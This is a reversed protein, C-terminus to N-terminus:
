AMRVFTSFDGNKKASLFGFRTFFPIVNERIAQLNNVEFM